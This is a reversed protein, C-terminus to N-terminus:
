VMLRVAKKGEVPAKSGLKYSKYFVYKKFDKTKASNILSSWLGLLHSCKQDKASNVHCLSSMSLMPYWNETNLMAVMDQIFPEEDSSLYKTGDHDLSAPESYISFFLLPIIFYTTHISM